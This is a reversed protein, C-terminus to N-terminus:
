ARGHHTIHIDPQDNSRQIPKDGHRRASKARMSKLATEVRQSVEDPPFGLNLPGFAVDDMVTPCFLQDDPDQFVIGIKRRVATLNPERVELGDIVIRGNSPEEVGNLHHMFTSKGSGNRGILAVKEGHGIRCTLGKLVERGDPYNFHVNDVEIAWQGNM